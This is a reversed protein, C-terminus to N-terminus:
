RGATAAVALGAGYTNMYGAPDFHALYRDVAKKGNALLLSQEDPSLAFQTTAINGADVAITRLSTSHSAFRDDWASSATHFLEMGFHVPWPVLHSAPGLSPGIGRGGTLTFGFTMRKPGGDAPSTDFLWVPFNSLTGGDVIVSPEPKAQAKWTAPRLGDRRCVEGDAEAADADIIEGVAFPTDGPDTCEVRNRYLTVPEFFLPISMSMRVARAIRFSAPDLPPGGPTESYRPLDDPLLVLAHATTDCAVMKLTSGGSENRTQDFTAHGLADDFWTEFREGHALGHHVVLNPLGGLIKSHLPYDAFESFPTNQLLPQLKGVAEDKYVALYAAIIAGASTGAVNVWRRIPYTEHAAFGQLAGVLGLGKVGGGRFVGDAEDLWIPGM